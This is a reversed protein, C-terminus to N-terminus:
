LVLRGSEVLFRSENFSYRRLTRLDWKVLVVQQKGEKKWVVLDDLTVELVCRGVHNVLTNSTMEVDFSKDSNCVM